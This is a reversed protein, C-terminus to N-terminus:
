HIKLLDNIRYRIERVSEVYGSSPNRERDTEQSFIKFQEEVFNYM